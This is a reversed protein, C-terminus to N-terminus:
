SLGVAIMRKPRTTTPQRGNVENHSWPACPLCWTGMGGQRCVYIHIHTYIYIYIYICM